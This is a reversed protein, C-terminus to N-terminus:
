RPSFAVESPDAPPDDARSTLDRDFVRGVSNGALDELVPDVVLRHAAAGWPAEPVLCWSREETGIQATGTIPRGDPGWVGLCRALLAADLPRDFTVGLPERTGVPPPSLIWERPEVLRHEDGGVAYRREAGRALPVGRADCFGEDVVLRCAEGVRLPYGAVRNSVLGRKIRAPDLLVTLRRRDGDWLEHEAPLLAGAMVRGADDELRVHSAAFGESMPASFWVYCRLLNRPVEAASPRIDVVETIRAMEKRPCVLVGAITGDVVVTYTTGGVFAFRPLFCLDDGDRVLAGAMPPLHVAAAGARVQVTAGVAPRGLRICDDGGLRSWSVAAM